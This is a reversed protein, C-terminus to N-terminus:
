PAIGDITPLRVSIPRICLVVVFNMSELTVTWCIFCHIDDWSSFGHHPKDPDCKFEEVFNPMARQAAPGFWGAASENLVHTSEPSSLFKGWANLVERLHQNIVPHVFAAFGAATGMPWDLIANIPFGILGAPEGDIVLFEPGHTLIHNMLLLMHQYDRVQPKM